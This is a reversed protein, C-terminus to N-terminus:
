AREWAAAGLGDRRLKWGPGVAHTSDREEVLVPGPVWEGVPLASWRRVPTDFATGDWWVRREELPADLRAPAPPAPVVEPVPVSVELALVDVAAWPVDEGAVAAALAAVRDGKGGPAASVSVRALEGGDFGILVMELDADDVAFGEGRLDIAGKAALRGLVVELGEATAAEAGGSASEYRHRVAVTTCGFASFASGFPFSRVARVGVAAAVSWLHLPGAGGFAYLVVSAPDADRQALFREIGARMQATAARQVEVAGEEVSCDLLAAIGHAIVRRAADEDLVFQGGLARGPALLGLVLDADTLTPQTGGRGFAAPGPVAGASLPGVTVAGDLLTVLSSGGCALSETRNMPLAVVVGRVSPRADRECGGAAVFGLDLTTGGMDATLVLDDGHRAAITEAGSLGASPGSGYTSIATSKAVRAVGSNAHVVLLPARMGASRLEHEAAQLLHAMDRHLYANVVATATRLSDDRCASVEEALQLPVSRLYHEPYRERVIRRVHQEEDAGGAARPLSVVVQRVGLGVLTRAAALVQDRGVPLDLGHVLDPATFRGLVPHEGDGYLRTESGASVLLGVRSGTAEVVSNTGITTALRIVDIRDLFPEVEEGLAAASAELCQVLSRTLDFRYTPVKVTSSRGADAVYGDTFTGGMDIGITLM